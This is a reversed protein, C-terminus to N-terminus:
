TGYIAKKNRLFSQLLTSMDPYVTVCLLCVLGLRSILQDAPWSFFYPFDVLLSYIQIATESPYSGPFNLLYIM